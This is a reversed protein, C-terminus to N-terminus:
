HGIVSVTNSINNVVYVFNGNSLATIGFPNTGVAIDATLMRDSSNFVLINNDLQNTVYVYNSNPLVTLDAPSNGVTFTSTITNTSTEIISVSNTGHTLYLEDSSASATLSHPTSLISIVSIVTNDSTRIVSITNSAENTVYIYNGNPLACISTPGSGVTITSIVTNDSTRIVSVNDSGKNAVYVYDGATTAAIGYPFQGLPITATVTNDSIRIVSVNNSGSNAVYVYNGNPLATLGSPETQVPITATVMNDSTRIVSVNASNNNTVYLYNDNPLTIIGIPNSGVSITAIEYNPIPAGNRRVIIQHGFTWGSIAGRSDKVRSRVLYIGSDPWAYRLSIPMGSPLFISWISTDGNGWDFQYSISDDNPDVSFSSFNYYMNIYGSGVGSPTSPTNPITNSTINIIKGLSWDSLHLNYDRAQARITYNGATQWSHSASAQGGSAVLNSWTSTDGDGWAFRIVISDDEYDTASSIFDYSTNINITDPGTPIIPMDPAHNKTECGIAIFFAILALYYTYQFGKKM